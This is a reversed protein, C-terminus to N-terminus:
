SLVFRSKTAKRMRQKTEPIRHRNPSSKREMEVIRALILNNDFKQWFVGQWILAIAWNL